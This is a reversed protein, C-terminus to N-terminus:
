NIDPYKNRGWAPRPFRPFKKVETIGILSICKALLLDSYKPPVEKGYTNFWNDPDITEMLFQQMDRILGYDLIIEILAHTVYSEPTYELSLARSKAYIKRMNLISIDNRKCQRILLLQYDEITNKM